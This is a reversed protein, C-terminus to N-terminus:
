DFAFAAILCLVLFLLFSLICFLHAIFCLLVRMVIFSESKQYMRINEKDIDRVNFSAGEM